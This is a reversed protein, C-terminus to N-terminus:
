PKGFGYKHLIATASPSLVYDAFRHADDRRAGALTLAIPYRVGREGPIVQVVKVRDKQMAADTAYVFAADVEGRAVYDLSQRVNQTPVLKSQLVEWLGATRLAERAYRGAPVTAPNGVAIRAVARSRLDGMSRVAAQGSAPVVLVLTNTAFDRRSSPDIVRRSQADDMAQEDAAALVDVPAGNAIQRVLVDSAGFNLSVRTGPHSAEFAAGIDRFANGLSAAASVIIEAAGAPTVLLCAAAVVFLHRIFAMHSARFPIRM